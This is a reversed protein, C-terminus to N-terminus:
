MGEGLRAIGTADGNGIFKGNIQIPELDESDIFGRVDEHVTDVIIRRCETDLEYISRQARGLGSEAVVEVVTKIHRAPLGRLLRLLEMHSNRIHRLWEGFPLQQKLEFEREVFEDIESM